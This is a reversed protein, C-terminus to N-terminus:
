INIQQIPQHCFLLPALEETTLITLKNWENKKLLFELMHIRRYIGRETTKICHKWNWEFRLLQKRDEFGTIHIQPQWHFGATSKAGGSIERNHQKLRRTFDNTAGIYTKTSDTAKICYCILM